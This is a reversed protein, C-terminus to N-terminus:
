LVTIRGEVSSYKESLNGHLHNTLYDILVEYDYKIDSEVEEDSIFMNAGNGGEELIYNISSVTYIKEPVINVYENGELVQVDKVRREGDVYLFDDTEPDVVVHTPISTDISYKLGSTQVFGGFEGIPNGDLAYEEQTFRSCHELYDLIESGSVNKIMLYNGFPHVAFIDSFKVDGSNINARIGGGNIFGIDSSTTIRYADAVMNGITTERSRVIRVGNEDTVTLNVDSQAVIQNGIEDTETKLQNVYDAIVKDSKDFSKVLKTSITGNKHIILQGFENLKTGADCFPIDENDKNKHMEWDITAHTHGDMVAVYGNTSAIIDESGFPHSSEGNGCHTLLVTYDAIKNCEDINDQICSFYEETSQGEFSYVFEGDEKFISPTSESLTTPTTVGVFGIKLNGYEKIVFPKVESLKNEKNGTYSLNCAVIDGNFESIRQSLEDIGYDFEHNGIAAVEYNMKNMIKIISEGHSFAGILDGQIYDGADVLSVYKYSKLMENRYASLKAYGLNEDVGCHVDTSYLIVVDDSRNDKKDEKKGSEDYPNLIDGILNKIPFYINSGIWSKVDNFTCGGLLLALLPLLIIKSKKM